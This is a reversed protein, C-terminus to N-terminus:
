INNKEYNLLGYNIKRIELIYNTISKYKKTKIYKRHYIELLFFDIMSINILINKINSIRIKQNNKNILYSYTLEVVELMYNDLHTKLTIEKKPLNILIKNLYWYTKQVSSLLKFNNDM